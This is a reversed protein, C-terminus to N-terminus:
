CRLAEVESGSVASATLWERVVQLLCDAAPADLSPHDSAAYEVGHALQSLAPDFPVSTLQPMAVAAGRDSGVRWLRGIGGAYCDGVYAIIDNERTALFVAFNAASGIVQLVDVEDNPLRQLTEIVSRYGFVQGGLADLRCGHLLKPQGASDGGFVHALAALEGNIRM